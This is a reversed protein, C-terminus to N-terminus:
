EVVSDAEKSKRDFNFALGFRFTEALPNTRDTAHLYSMDIGLTQYRIGFGVTFYKRNGKQPNEYFYGARVAFMDDYWYELGTSLMIEQLEERAGFPADSFSGLMGGILNKNPSGLYPRIPNGSSDTSGYYIQSTPVMLKTAQLALSFKNFDDVQHTLVTGLRLTTPIFDARSASSYSVKNGINTIAIGAAINFDRDDIVLDRNYYFGLDAAVAQGPQAQTGGGSSYNGSLDSRIYKLSLGGSFGKGLLRSYTAMAAFERPNYDAIAGGTVDTFSIKGLDFYTLSVSIADEKRLKYYGTLYVLSMDNVIKRLWPNYSLAVGFDKKVQALKGPNWHASYEDPTTAVGQDGLAAGRSDPAITLFPVATYIPRPGDQIAQLQGATNSGSGNINSQASVLGNVCVGFTICAISVQFKHQFTM